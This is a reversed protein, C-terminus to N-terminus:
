LVSFLLCANALVPAVPFIQGNIVLGKGMCEARVKKSCMRMIFLMTECAVGRYVPRILFEYGNTQTFLLKKM